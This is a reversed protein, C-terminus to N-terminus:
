ITVLFDNTSRRVKKDLARKDNEERYGIPVTVVPTLNEKELGLIESYQNASFGEMPCADLDMMACVNLLNGLAIYVQKDMWVNQQEIPMSLISRMMMDRYKVLEEVPIQRTSSLNQVYADIHSEDIKDERCIIFLHSADLVQKQGYSANLLDARKQKNEVVVVKMLQLGYSTPTLRVSEILTKVQKETLKKTPDFAQTAYRKNLASLIKNEM